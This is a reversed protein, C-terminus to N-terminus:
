PLKKQKEKTNRTYTTNHKITKPQWYRHLQNGPFVWARNWFQAARKAFQVSQCIIIIIIIFDLLLTCVRHILMLLILSHVHHASTCFISNVTCHATHQVICKHANYVVRSHCHCASPCVSNGHFMVLCMCLYVTDPFFNGGTYEKYSLCIIYSKLLIKCWCHLM